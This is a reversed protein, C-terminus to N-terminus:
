AQAKAQIVALARAAFARADDESLAAPNDNVAVRLAWLASRESELEATMANPNLSSVSNIVDSARLLLGYPNVTEAAWMEVADDPAHDTLYAALAETDVPTRYTVTNEKPPNNSTHVAM